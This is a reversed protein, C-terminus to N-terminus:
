GNDIDGRDPHPKEDTCWINVVLFLVAGVILIVLCLWELWAPVSLAAEGSLSLLGASALWVGFIVKQLFEM